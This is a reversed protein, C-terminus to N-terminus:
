GVKGTKKHMRHVVEELIEVNDNLQRGPIFNCQNSGILYPLVKRMRNALVKTLFEFRVNCLSIPRFQKISELVDVNPLLTIIIEYIGESLVGKNLFDLSFDVVVKGVM